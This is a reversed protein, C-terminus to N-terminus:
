DRYIQDNRGGVPFKGEQVPVSGHQFNVRDPNGDWEHGPEAIHHFQGYGQAKRDLQLAPLGILRQGIIQLPNGAKIEVLRRNGFGDLKKVTQEQCEEVLVRNREPGDLLFVGGQEAEYGISSLLRHRTAQCPQFGVLSKVSEQMFQPVRQSGVLALAGPAPEEHM